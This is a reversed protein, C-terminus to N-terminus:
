KDIATILPAVLAGASLAAAADVGIRKGLDKTNWPRERLKEMAGLQREVKELRAPQSAELQRLPSGVRPSPPNVAVVEPARGRGGDEM